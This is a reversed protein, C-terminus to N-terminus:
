GLPERIFTMKGMGALFTPCVLISVMCELKALPVACNRGYGVTPKEKTTWKMIGNDWFGM